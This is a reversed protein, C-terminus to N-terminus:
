TMQLCCVLVAAAAAPSSFTNNCFTVHLLIDCAAFSGTVHVAVFSLLRLWWRAWPQQNIRGPQVFIKLVVVAAAYLALVLVSEQM